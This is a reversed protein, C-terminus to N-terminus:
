GDVGPRLCPFRFLLDPGKSKWEQPNRPTTIHSPTPLLWSSTQTTGVNEMIDIEGSKPWDGYEWDTPLMWIAPWMGRGDPIRAKVEIRGYLWDGKGKTRLRASTYGLGEYDEKHATIHLIREKVEANKLRDATYYQAENNGWKWANGETDFGWKSADPLGNYNFEDSWVLTKEGTGPELPLFEPVQKKTNRLWFTCDTLLILGLSTGYKEDKYNIRSM